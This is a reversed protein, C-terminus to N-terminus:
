FRFYLFPNFSSDILFATSAVLLAAYYAPLGVARVSIRGSFRQSVLRVIPVSGLVSVVLLVRYNGFLYRAEANVLEIGNLGFMNGLYDFIESPAGLQFIVWSVLVILLTYAHRFDAPLRLLLSSVFLRELMLIVGFYLGWLVFNWSAGHWLGTM